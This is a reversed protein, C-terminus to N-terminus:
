CAERTTLGVSGLHRMVEPIKELQVYHFQVNQRTTIHGWGRSYTEGIFAMMDLQEPTIAGYPLKVRVMQNHGGQRQGYIGNALRFVKFVDEALEGKLYSDLMREFKAADAEIDPDIVFAAPAATDPTTGTLTPNMRRERRCRPRTLPPRPRRSRRHRQHRPQSGAR